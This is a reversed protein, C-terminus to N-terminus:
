KATPRSLRYLVHRATPDAPDILPHDFDDKADRTMGLKEMVRRSPTNNPTTLAVIEDLQLTDFGFKVCARAAETAYGKGHFEAALRWGIEVCPTFHADWHPRNLGVFGAFATVGPLELAWFGWGQEDIARTFRAIREDTEAQSQLAPFFRMVFPDQNLAAFPARDSPRWQRLKCRETTLEIPM